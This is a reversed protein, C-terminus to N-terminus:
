KLSRELRGIIGNVTFRCYCRDDKTENALDNLVEIANEIAARMRITDLSEGDVLALKLSDPEGSFNYQTHDGNVDVVSYMDHHENYTSKQGAMKEIEALTYKKDPKFKM